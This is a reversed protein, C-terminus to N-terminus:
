AYKAASPFLTSLPPRPDYLRSFQEADPHTPVLGANDFHIPHREVDDLVRDILDIVADIHKSM